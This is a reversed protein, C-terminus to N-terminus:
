SGPGPLLLSRSCQELPAVLLLPAPNLSTSSPLFITIVLHGQGGGEALSMPWSGRCSFWGGQGGASAPVLGLLQLKSVENAQLFDGELGLMDLVVAAQHQVRFTVKALLSLNRRLGWSCCCCFSPPPPHAPPSLPLLTYCFGGGVWAAPWWSCPNQPWPPM